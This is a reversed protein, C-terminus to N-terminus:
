KGHQVDGGVGRVVDEAAAARRIRSREQQLRERRLYQELAHPLQELPELPIGRREPRSRSAIKGVPPVSASKCTPRNSFAQVSDTVSDPVAPPADMPETAEGPIRVTDELPRGPGHGDINPNSACGAAGAILAAFVVLRM